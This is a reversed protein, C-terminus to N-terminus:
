DGDYYMGRGLLWIWWIILFFWTPIDVADKALVAYGAILILGFFFLIITEIRWNGRKKFLLELM